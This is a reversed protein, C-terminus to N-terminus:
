GPDGCYLPSGGDVGCCQGQDYHAKLQEWLQRYEDNPLLEQQWTCYLFARPKRRLGEIVHRYNISRARRKQKDASRIRPLEVVVQHALYGVMRNHYLHLELTRGILRSPVTYLMCRVEITSHCSVRATVVEYDAVRYQPLPQLVGKEEEYKLQCRRNLGAVANDILAQYDEISAFDSSGRLLIAQKIRHKLHGHSSEITGNEHAIGRNNRTPQMRYHDCLQDYLTTLAPKRQGGLNRYAASLSDTRHQKTSCNYIRRQFFAANTTIFGQL